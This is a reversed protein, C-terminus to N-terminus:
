KVVKALMAQYLEEPGLEPGPAANKVLQINGNPPLRDV